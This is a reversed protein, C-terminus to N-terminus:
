FMFGMSVESKWRKYHHRTEIIGSWRSRYTTSRGMLMGFDASINLNNGILWNFGFAPNLYYGGDPLRGTQDTEVRFLSGSTWGARVKYFPTFVHETLYGTLELGVPFLRMQSESQLEFKGLHVGLGILRNIQYGFNFSLGSPGNLDSQYYDAMQGSIRSFGFTFYIRGTRNARREFITNGPQIGVEYREIKDMPFEVILSGDDRNFVVKDEKIETIKGQLISGDRLYIRDFSSDSTQGSCPTLLFILWFIITLFIGVARDFDIM